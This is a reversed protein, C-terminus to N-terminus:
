LPVLTSVSRYLRNDELRYLRAEAKQRTALVSVPIDQVWTDGPAITLSRFVALPQGGLTVEVDFRQAQSEASRIGVTLRGPEGNASPLMWFETYKYQRYTAEDRVALAYAGTAVLVALMLVAGQWLHIRVRAPWAPLDPADRRCAAVLAAGATLAWFWVAWGLPTLSGAANLAFGGAIGAAFSAGVAYALHELVSTTRVGLARLVMHGSVLFIMPVGLVTRLVSSDSFAVAMVMASAWLCAAALDRNSHTRM